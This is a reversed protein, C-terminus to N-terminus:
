WRGPIFMQTVRSPSQIGQGKMWAEAEALHRQGEVGGTLAGRRHRAVEAYLQMGATRLDDEAERLNVAAEKSNGRLQAVSAQVLLAMARAWAQQERYLRHADALALKLYGPHGSAAMAIAARARLHFAQIRIIAVHLFYSRELARWRAKLMRWLGEADGRYLFLEGEGWLSLWHPIFMHQGPPLVIQALAENSAALAAEPEDAIFGAVFGLSSRLYTAAYLDGRNKADSLLGPLRLAVEGVRGMMYLSHMEYINSTDLEWSGGLIKRSRTSRELMARAEPLLKGAQEWRSELFAAVGDALRILIMTPEQEQPPLGQALREAEQLCRSRSRQRPQQSFTAGYAAELALARALRYPEGAQQAYFVHQEQFSTGFLPDGFHVAKAACFCADILLKERNTLPSGSVVSRQGRLWLRARFYLVSLLAQHRTHPARVGLSALLDRLLSFGRMIHGAGLYQETALLKLDRAVEPTEALAAASIFAEAADGGRRAHALAEGLRVLLERRQDPAMVGLDLAMRFLEAARDFALHDIARVAGEQAYRAARDHEGALRFHEALIEPETRGGASLVMGLRGHLRARQQATLQTLVAQRIRDHYVDVAGQDTASGGRPLRRLLRAECLCDLIAHQQSVPLEAAICTTSPDLPQLAVASLTLFTQAEQTLANIQRLVIQELSVGVATLSQRALLNLLFPNGSADHALRAVDSQRLAPSLHHLLSCSEEFSLEDVKVESRRASHLWSLLPGPRHDERDQAGRYCLLLLLPPPDASGLIGALLYASDADGWQMDDIFLVVARQACLRRLLERLAQAGRSQEYAGDGSDEDSQASAPRTPEARSRLVRDLVPFLRRLSDSNCPLIQQRTTEPLQHLFHSLGDVLEDMARYRISERPRCAGRLVVMSPDEAQLLSLFHEVLTTKGMGSEGSVDVVVPEHRTAAFASRLADLHRARGVFPIPPVATPPSITVPAVETSSELREVATRAEQAGFREAADRRLLGQVLWDLVQPVGPVLASLPPNSASRRVDIPRRGTLAEFLMVGVSFWDSARQPRGLQQEPAMYGPTGVISLLDEGAAIPASVLGFDLLVTRGDKDVLVNAPKIDRHLVPGEPRSEHLACVGDVLGRLAQRLRGSDYGSSADKTTRVFATFPVGDIIPEMTFYWQPERTIPHLSEFLDYLTVLNRHRLSQATRFERKFRILDRSQLLKLAVSCQLVPDEVLFVSGFSGAGLRRQITFRGIRELLGPYARLSDDLERSTDIALAAGAGRNDIM